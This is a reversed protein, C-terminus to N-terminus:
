KRWIIWIITSHGWPVYPQTEDVAPSVAAVYTQNDIARARQLVEWHAPGTKRASFAGTFLLLKAGYGIYKTKAKQCNIRSFEPYRLDLCIGLGVKCVGSVGSIKYFKM